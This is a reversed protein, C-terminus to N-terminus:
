YVLMYILYIIDIHYYYFAISVWNFGSCLRRKIQNEQYESKAKLRFDSQTEKGPRGLCCESTMCVYAHTHLCSQKGSPKFLIKCCFQLAAALLQLNSAMLWFGTRGTPLPLFFLFVRTGCCCCCRRRRRCCRFSALLLLFMQLLNCYFHHTFNGIGTESVCGERESVRQRTVQSIFRLM